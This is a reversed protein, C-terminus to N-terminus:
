GYPPHKSTFLEFTQKYGSSYRLRYSRVTYTFLIYIHGETRRFCMELM